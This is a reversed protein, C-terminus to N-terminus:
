KTPKTMNRSLYPYTFLASGSSSATQDTVVSNTIGKIDKPCM